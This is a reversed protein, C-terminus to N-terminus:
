SPCATPTRSTPTSSSGGGSSASSPSTSRRGEADRGARLADQHHLRRRLRAPRGPRDDVHGRAPPRRPDAQPRRRRPGEQAPLARRHVADGAAVLSASSAPSSSSRSRCTRSRRPKRARRAPVHRAPRGLRLRGAGPRPRRRGLPAWRRWPRRRPRAALCRVDAVVAVTGRPRKQEAMVARRGKRRHRRPQGRDADQVHLHGAHAHHRHARGGQRRRHLRHPVRGAGHDRQRQRGQGAPRRAAAQAHEGAEVVLQRPVSDDNTFLLNLSASRPLTLEDPTMSGATVTVTAAVSSKDAVANSTHKEPGTEEEHNHLEDREGTSAGVVGATLVGVGGLVLVSSLVAGSVRRPTSLIAAVVLVLAGLGIFVGVAASKPIALMVRSFGFIVLGVTLAGLIPFELPHLLRGRVRANYEPDDSARDSWAQVTWEITTAILVVLGGLFWRRDYVLGIAVLGAGFAGIIPWMSPSVRPGRGVGEADAPSTAEVAPASSTPTASPSSSAASSRAGRRGLSLLVIVGFFELDTGVWYVVAAVIAAAAVGFFFKSGTTFM